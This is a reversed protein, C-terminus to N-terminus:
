KMKIKMHDGSQEQIGKGCSGLLVMAVSCEKWVAGFIIFMYEWSHFQADKNGIEVNM